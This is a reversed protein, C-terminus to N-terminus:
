RLVRKRKQYYTGISLIVASFAAMKQLFICSDCRRHSRCNLMLLRAAKLLEKEEPTYSM